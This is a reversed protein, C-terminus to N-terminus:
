KLKFSNRQCFGNNNFAVMWRFSWAEANFMAFKIRMTKHKQSSGESQKERWYVKGIPSEQWIPRRNNEFAVQWNSHCEWAVQTLPLDRSTEMQASLLSLLLTLNSLVFSSSSSHPCINSRDTRNSSALKKWKPRWLSSEEAWLFASSALNASLTCSKPVLSAAEIYRTENSLTAMQLPKKCSARYQFGIVQFFGLFLDWRCFQEVCHYFDM